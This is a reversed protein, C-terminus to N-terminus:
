FLVKCIGYNMRNREDYDTEKNYCNECIYYQEIEQTCIECLVPDYKMFKARREIVSLDYDLFKFIGITPEDFENTHQIKM